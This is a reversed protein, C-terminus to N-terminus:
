SEMFRNLDKNNGIRETKMKDAQLVLGMSCTSFFISVPLRSFTGSSSCVKGDGDEAVLNGSKNCCSRILSGTLVEASFILRSKKSWFCDVLGAGIGGFVVAVAMMLVVAPGM